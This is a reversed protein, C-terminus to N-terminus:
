KMQMNWQRVTLRPSEIEFIHTKGYAERHKRRQDLKHLLLGMGLYLLTLGAAFLHDEPPGLATGM